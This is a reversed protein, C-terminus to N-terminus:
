IGYRTLKIMLIGHFHQMSIKFAHACFVGVFISSLSLTQFCKLFSSFDTLVILGKISKQIVLIPMTLDYMLILRKIGISIQSLHNIRQRFSVCFSM